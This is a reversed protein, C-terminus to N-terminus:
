IDGLTAMKKIQLSPTDIFSYSDPFFYKCKNKGRLMEKFITRRLYYYLCFLHKSDIIKLNCILDPSVLLLEGYNLNLEITNKNADFNKYFNNDKTFISKHSKPM